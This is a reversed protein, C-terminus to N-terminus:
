QAKEVSYLIDDFQHRYMPMNLRKEDLIHGIFGISRGLAFFANLTGSSIFDDIQESEYGMGMWLDVMLVGICGDVNLILTEKKASTIKEVELAYNLLDTSPFSKKAYEKLSKVRLDPKRVSKIRHGIGSILQKNRKANEIFESPSLQDAYGAKFQKAAEDIAGGFRPGITLLGSALCSLLDKGARATVRANM